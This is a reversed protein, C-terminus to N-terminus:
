REKLILPPAAPSSILSDHVSLLPSDSLSVAVMLQHDSVPGFSRDTSGRDAAGTDSTDNDLLGTATPNNSELLAAALVGLALATM